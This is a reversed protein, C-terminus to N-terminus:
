IVNYCFSSINETHKIFHKVSSQFNVLLTQLSPCLLILCTKQQKPTINAKKKQYVNIILNLTSNESMYYRATFYLQGINLFVSSCGNELGFLLSIIRDFHM